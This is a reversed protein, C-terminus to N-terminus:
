ELLEVLASFVLKAIVSFMMFKNSNAWGFHGPGCLDIPYIKMLLSFKEM